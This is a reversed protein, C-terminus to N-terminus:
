GCIPEFETGYPDCILKSAKLDSSKFAKQTHLSKGIKKTRKFDIGFPELVM